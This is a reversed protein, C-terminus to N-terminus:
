RKGFLGGFLPIGPLREGINYGIQGADTQPQYAPGLYPDVRNQVDQMTPLLTPRQAYIQRMKEPSPGEYGLSREIPRVYRDHLADIGQRIDGPVGIAEAAGTRLGSGLSKVIDWADWRERDSNGVVPLQPEPDNQSRQPQAAMLAGMAPTQPTPQPQQLAAVIDDIGAVEAEGTRQNPLACGLINL